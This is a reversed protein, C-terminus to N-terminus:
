EISLAVKEVVFEGIIALDNHATKRSLHRATIGLWNACEKAIDFVALPLKYPDHKSSILYVM